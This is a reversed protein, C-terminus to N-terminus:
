VGVSISFSVLRLLLVRQIFHLMKQQFKNKDYEKIGYLYEGVRERYVHHADWSSAGIRPAGDMKWVYGHCDSVIYMVDNVLGKNEIKLATHTWFRSRFGSWTAEASTM